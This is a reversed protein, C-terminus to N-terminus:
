GREYRDIGYQGYNLSRLPIRTFNQKSCKAPTRGRIYINEYVLCRSNFVEM